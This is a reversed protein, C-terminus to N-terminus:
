TGAAAVPLFRRRIAGAIDSMGDFVSDFRDSRVFYATVWFRWASFVLLVGFPLWLTLLPSYGHAQTMVAGQEVVEHYAVLIALAVAFRYSRLNRRKGIGFPLALVPLIILSVINVLRRHLEATMSNVTAARPPTHRQAFLEPLTLEREDNGRSRELKKNLQGLPMNARDFEGALAAAPPARSSFDPWAPLALRHGHELHLIPRKSGVESILKGGRATLTESGNAAREDFLFMREFTSNARSLRDLIFTRSGAQMFVGEEALYFVEVTKVAFIAARYGFRAHPQLWGFIALSVLTLGVALFMVPRLLRSLGVGSSMLADIEGDRSMKNFGFLLGLFLAVPIALGLYHPLLYALLEFVVGFSNRKGLTVDLLNVMREALLVLMGIGMATLIPKSIQTLVYRDVIAM